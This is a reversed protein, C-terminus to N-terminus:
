AEPKAIRYWAYTTRIKPRDEDIRNGTNAKLEAIVAIPDRWYRGLELRAKKMTIKFWQDPHDVYCKELTISPM